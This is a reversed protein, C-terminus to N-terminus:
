TLSFIILKLRFKDNVETINRFSIVFSAKFYQGITLLSAVVFRFIDFFGDSVVGYQTQVVCNVILFLNQWYMFKVLVHEHLM